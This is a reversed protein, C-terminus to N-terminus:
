VAAGGRGGGVRIADACVVAVLVGIDCHNGVRAPTPLEMFLLGDEELTNMNAEAPTRSANRRKEVGPLWVGDDPMGVGPLWEDPMVIM